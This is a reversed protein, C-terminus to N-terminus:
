RFMGPLSSQWRVVPRRALSPGSGESDNSSSSKKPTTKPTAVTSGTARTSKEANCQHGGDQAARQPAAAYVASTILLSAFLLTWPLVRQM